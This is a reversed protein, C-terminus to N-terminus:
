PKSVMSALLMALAAEAHTKVVAIVCKRQPQMVRLVPQASVFNAGIWIM